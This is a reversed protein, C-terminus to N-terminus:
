PLEWGNTLSNRWKVHELCCKACTYGIDECECCAAAASDLHTEVDDMLDFLTIFKKPRTVDKTM